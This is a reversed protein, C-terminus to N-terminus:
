LGARVTATVEIGFGFRHILAGETVVADGFAQGGGAAFVAGGLRPLQHVELVGLIGHVGEQAVVLDGNQFWLHGGFGLDVVLVQVSRHSLSSIMIGPTSPKMYGLSVSSCHLM